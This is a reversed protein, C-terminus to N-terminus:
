EIIRVQIETLFEEPNTTYRNDILYFEYITDALKLNNQTAYDFVHKIHLALNKYSGRYTYCVYNGSPVIDHLIETQQNQLIFVSSYKGFVGQKIDNISICAGIKLNDFQTLKFNYKKLLFRISFDFEDDITFDTELKVSYRTTFYNTKIINSEAKEFTKLMTLQTELSSLSKKLRAIEKKIEIKENNLILMTNALTQHDLYDKIQELPLRLKRLESIINLRYMDSLRYLRYGNEARKPKLLGLEEYYRLSDIGINFLKSIESITFNKKM